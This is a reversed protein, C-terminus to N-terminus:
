SKEVIYGVGRINKIALGTTQKLKNLAVRLATDSPHTLQDLLITKDLVSGINHMFLDCLREQVEGLQVITDDKYLTKTDPFFKLNKYSIAKTTQALKAKVRILLEEPFFPKKLYDDAGIEFAKSISNLDIMASIFITPTTDDANRLSELLELGNMDPVNIDFVYLEYKNDYSADIADNGNHVLEVSYGNEELLEALTSALERDDELLLINKKM